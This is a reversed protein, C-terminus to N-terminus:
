SWLSNTCVGLQHAWDPARTAPTLSAWKGIQSHTLVRKKLAALRKVVISKRAIVWSFIEAAIFPAKAGRIM